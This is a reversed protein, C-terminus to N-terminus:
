TYFVFIIVLLFLIVHLSLFMYLLAVYDGSVSTRKLNNFILVVHLPHCILTLCFANSVRFPALMSWQILYFIGFLYVAILFTTKM